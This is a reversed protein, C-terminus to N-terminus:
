QKRWINEWADQLLNGLVRPDGQAPRVDGDPEVYLWARGAGDQHADESELAVPHFRSYPVPINWVLETGAAAAQDRVAQLTNALSLDSVSLSIKSVGQDQLRKLMTIYAGIDSHTITLHVIVSLDEVLANSVARWSNEDDPNLVLMLHDLGAQLLDNFYTQDLLRLGDSLVGSIMGFEEAKRILVPLDDRLTPEGGTFIVHPIGANWSKELISVWEDTILEKVVRDVPAILNESHDPLSYSLACDLRYPASMRGSFPQRREFDLFTVPDLDPTKLLMHLREALFIYDQRAQDAQVHFRSAMLKGVKEPSLNQIMFYVYSAATQNLHLVTSANLILIGEGTDEVRLHYRFNEPDEPPSQYHYMGPQVQNKKFLNMQNFDFLPSM